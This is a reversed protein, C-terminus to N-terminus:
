TLDFYVLIEWTIVMGYSSFVSGEWDITHHLCTPHSEVTLNPAGSLRERNMNKCTVFSVNRV